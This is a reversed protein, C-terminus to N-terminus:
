TKCTAFGLAIAEDRSMVVAEGISHVVPFLYADTRGSAAKRAVAWREVESTVPPDAGGLVRYFLLSADKGLCVFARAHVAFTSCEGGCRHNIEIEVREVAETRLALAAAIALGHRLGPDRPMTCRRHCDNGIIMRFATPPDSARADLIKPLAVEANVVVPVFLLMASLLRLM